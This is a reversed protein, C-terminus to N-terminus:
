LSSSAVALRSAILLSPGCGHCTDNEYPRASCAAASLAQFPASAFAAAPWFANRWRARMFPRARSPLHVASAPSTRTTLATDVRASLQHVHWALAATRSATRTTRPRVAAGSTPRRRRRSGRCRSSGSGLPRATADARAAPRSALRADSDRGHRRRRRAYGSTSNRRRAATVAMDDDYAVDVTGRSRPGNTTTSRDRGSRSRRRHEDTRAAVRLALRSPQRGPLIAVSSRGGRRRREVPSVATRVHECVGVM